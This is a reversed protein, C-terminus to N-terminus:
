AAKAKAQLEDVADVREWTFLADERRFHGYAATRLYIPRRLDLHDIMGKPSLLFVKRM